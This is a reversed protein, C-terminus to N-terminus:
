YRPTVMKVSPRKDDLLCNALRVSAKMSSDSLMHVSTSITGLTFEALKLEDDHSGQLQAQLVVYITNNLVSLPAM